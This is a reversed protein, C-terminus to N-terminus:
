RRLFQLITAALDTLMHDAHSGRVIYEATKRRSYVVVRRVPLTPKSVASTELM